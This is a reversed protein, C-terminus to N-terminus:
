FDVTLLFFYHSWHGSGCIILCIPPFSLFARMNWALDEDKQKYTFMAKFFWYAMVILVCWCIASLNSLFFCIHDSSNYLFLCLGHDLHM